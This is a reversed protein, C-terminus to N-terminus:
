SQAFQSLKDGDLRYVLWGDMHHAGIKHYFDRAGQNWDLVEWEFRACNKEVAINACAKLLKLGTGDGRQSEKVYLDELFMSPRGTWTSWCFYYLAMGVPGSENEAILCHFYPNDGFGDRLIDEVSTKVADPEKEFLALERILELIHPADDPKAKRVSVSM